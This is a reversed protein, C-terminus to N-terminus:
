RELSIHGLEYQCCPQRHAAGEGGGPVGALVFQVAVLGGVVRVWLRGRAFEVTFLERRWNVYNKGCLGTELRPPYGSASSRIPLPDPRTGRRLASKSIGRKCIGGGKRSRAKASSWLQLTPM